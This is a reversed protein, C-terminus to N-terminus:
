YIDGRTELIEVVVVQGERDIRYLLRWGGQRYRFYNPRDTLAKAKPHPGFPDAAIADLDAMIAQAIKPQIRKLAKIVQKHIILEM